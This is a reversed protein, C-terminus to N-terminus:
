KRMLNANLGRDLAVYSLAAHIPETNVKAVAEMKTSGNSSLPDSFTEIGSLLNSRFGSLPNM